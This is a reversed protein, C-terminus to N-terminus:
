RRRLRQTRRWDALLKADCQVHRHCLPGAETTAHAHAGFSGGGLRRPLTGKHRFDYRHARKVGSKSTDVVVEQTV